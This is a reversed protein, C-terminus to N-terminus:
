GVIGYFGPIPTLGEETQTWIESFPTYLRFCKENEFIDDLADKDWYGDLTTRAVEKSIESSKADPDKYMKFYKM